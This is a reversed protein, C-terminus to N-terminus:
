NCRVCTYDGEAECHEIQITSHDLGFEERLLTQLTKMVQRCPIGEVISVHFSINNHGSTLSWLHLEHVHDVGEVEMIREEIQKADLGTPTGEMLIHLSERFLRSGTLIILATILLSAMADVWYAGTFFIIISASIAGVSGLTDGLVHIFAGRININGDSGQFLLFMGIGNVGLGLLAIFFMPVTNIEPPESFRQFAEYAIYLSLLILFVGNLFATIVEARKFGFTHKTDSPRAAVRLGVVALALAATDTLMHGADALLALSNTLLGGLFEVLMFTFTLIFVIYLGKSGSTAHTHLLSHDHDGESGHTHHHTHSTTM